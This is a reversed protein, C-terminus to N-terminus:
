VAKPESALLRLTVDIRSTPVHLDAAGAIDGRHIKDKEVGAGALVLACRQGAEGVAAPVNQAHISRVRAALGSPSIMVSDDVRVVGSLVTGTVATGQGKLTFVRDIALRFLRDRKKAAANSLAD